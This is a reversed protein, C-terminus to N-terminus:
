GGLSGAHRLHGYGADPLVGGRAMTALYAVAERHAEVEDDLGLGAAGLGPGHAKAAGVAPRGLQGQPPDVEGLVLGGVRRLQASRQRQPLGPLQGVLDVAAAGAALVHYRLM